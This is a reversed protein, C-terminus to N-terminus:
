VKFVFEQLFNDIYILWECKEMKKSMKPSKCKLPTQKPPGGPDKIPELLGGPGGQDMTKVKLAFNLMKHDIDAPKLQWYKGLSFYSHAM